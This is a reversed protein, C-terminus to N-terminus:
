DPPLAYVHGQKEDRITGTPKRERLDRHGAYGARGVKAKGEPTPVRSEELAEGKEYRTGGRRGETGRRAGKGM